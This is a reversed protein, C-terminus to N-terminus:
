TGPRCQRCPLTEQPYFHAMDVANMVVLPDTNPRCTDLVFRKLPHSVCVIGASRAVARRFLPVVGPIRAAIFSEYNDYLDVVHLLGIKKALWDGALVHYVDSVSMLIDPAFDEAVKRFADYLNDYTGLMMSEEFRPAFESFPMRLRLFYKVQKFPSPNVGQEMITGWFDFILAKKM